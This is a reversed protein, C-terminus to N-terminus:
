AHASSVGHGSPRGRWAVEVPVAEGHALEAAEFNWSRPAACRSFYNSWQRQFYKENGGLCPCRWPHILTTWATLRRFRNITKKTPRSSSFLFWCFTVITYVEDIHRTIEPSHIEAGKMPPVNQYRALAILRALSWTLRDFIKLKVPTAIHVNGCSLSTRRLVAHCQCARM